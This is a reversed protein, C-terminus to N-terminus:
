PTEADDSAPTESAGGQRRSAAAFLPLFRGTRRMYAAYDAHLALLRREEFGAKYHFLLVLGLALLLRYPDRVAGGFGMGFGMLTWGFAAVLIGTYIPHRVYAYLGETVLEANAKPSPFPSLSRGLGLAAFAGIGLGLILLVWGLGRAVMGLGRDLFDPRWILLLLLLAQLGVALYDTM